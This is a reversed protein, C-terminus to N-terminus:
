FDPAVAGAPLSSGTLSRMGVADFMPPVAVAVAAGPMQIVLEAVM